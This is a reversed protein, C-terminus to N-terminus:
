FQSGLVFPVVVKVTYNLSPLMAIATGNQLWRFKNGNSQGTIELQQGKCYEGTAPILVSATCQIHGCHQRPLNVDRQTEVELIYTGAATPKFTKANGVM